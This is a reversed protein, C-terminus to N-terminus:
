TSLKCHELFLLKQEFGFRLEALALGSTILSRLNAVALQHEQDHNFLFATRSTLRMNRKERKRSQARNRQGKDRFGKSKSVVGAFVLCTTGSPTHSESRASAFFSM